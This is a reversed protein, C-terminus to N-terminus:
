RKLIQWYGNKNAGIGEIYSNEILIKFNRLITRKNVGLLRALEEQTINPNDRILKLISNQLNNLKNNETFVFEKEKRIFENSRFPIIVRIHNSFFQFIDKEYTKLVRQIGIGLQEVYNLDRFIRMLEANRPNSFGQLFEKQTVGEQIGGNSSIVLKSDFIEFKPSYGNSWDNHIIANTVLEKVARDDFM